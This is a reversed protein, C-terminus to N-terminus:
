YTPRLNHMLRNWHASMQQNTAATNTNGYNNNTITLPANVTTSQSSNSTTNSVSSGPTQWMYPYSPPGVPPGFGLGQPSFPNTTFQQTLASGLDAAAKAAGKWNFHMLDGLINGLAGLEKIQDGVLNISAIVTNMLLQFFGLLDSKGKSQPSFLNFLHGIGTIVNGIASGLSKFASWLDLVAGKLETFSGNKKFTAYLQKTFHWVKQLTQGLSDFASKIDQAIQQGIHMGALAKNVKVVWAWLQPFASKSPDRLYTQFDDWMLIAASIGEVFLMFPNSVSLLALAAAIAKAWGPVSDALKKFWDYVKGLGQVAYIGAQWFSTLWQAVRKTWTPMNKVIVKNISELVGQVRTIPGNMYKVFYYGIWQLAYYAELKLQKFQLQLNQVMKIQQNYDGPTQMQLAVSHLQQYQSMLTPSLYLDQLSTGMAKLTANFAMAQQQTTWLQRSLIEMQIEQNGLGNLFKASAAAAAVGFAAVATAAQGFVKVVKPAFKALGSELSGIAKEAQGYSGKDVAFGLSVLYEKITELM